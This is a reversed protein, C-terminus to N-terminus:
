LGKNHIVSDHWFVINQQPRLLVFLVLRAPSPKHQPDLQPEAACLITKQKSYDLSVFALSSTESM